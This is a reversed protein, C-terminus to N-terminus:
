VPIYPLFLDMEPFLVKRHRIHPSISVLLKGTIDFSMLPADYSVCPCVYTRMVQASHGPQGEYIQAFTFDDGRIRLTKLDIGYKNFRLILTYWATM